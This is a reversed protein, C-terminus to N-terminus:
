SPCAVARVERFSLLSVSLGRSEVPQGVRGPSRATVCKELLHSLVGRLRRLGIVVLNINLVKASYGPRHGFYGAANLGVAVANNHPHGAEDVQLQEVIIQKVKEEVAM